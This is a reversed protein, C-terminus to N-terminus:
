YAKIGDFRYIANKSIPFATKFRRTEGPKVDSNYAYVIAPPLNDAPRSSRDVKFVVTVNSFKYDCNNRVNGIIFTQGDQLSTTNGAMALCGPSKGTSRPIVYGNMAGTYSSRLAFIAILGFLVVSAVKM